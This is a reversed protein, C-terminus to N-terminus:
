NGKESKPLYEQMFGEYDFDIELENDEESKAWRTM